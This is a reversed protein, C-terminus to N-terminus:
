SGTPTDPQHRTSVPLDRGAAAPHVGVTNVSGAVDQWAYAAVGNETMLHSITGNANAMQNWRECQAAVRRLRVVSTSIRGNDHSMVARIGLPELRGSGAGVCCVWGGGNFGIGCQEPRLPRLIQACHQLVKRGRLGELVEARVIQVVGNASTPRQRFYYLQGGQGSSAVSQAAMSSHTAAPPKAQCSISGISPKWGAWTRQEELLTFEM